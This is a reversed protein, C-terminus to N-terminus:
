TESGLLAVTSLNVTGSSAPPLKFQVQVQFEQAEGSTTHNTPITTSKSFDTTWTSTGGSSAITGLDRNVTGASTTIALRVTFAVDSAYAVFLTVPEGTANTYLRRARGKFLCGTFIDTFSTSTCVWPSERSTALVRHTHMNARADDVMAYLRASGQTTDSSTSEVLKGPPIPWSPNLGSDTATAYPDLGARPIEVCRLMSVGFTKSGISTTTITIAEITNEAYYTADKLARYVTPLRVDAPCALNITGDLLNGSDVWDGAGWSQTAYTYYATAYLETECLLVECGPTRKYPLTFTQTTTSTAPKPRVEFVSPKCYGVLSSLSNIWWQGHATSVSEGVM